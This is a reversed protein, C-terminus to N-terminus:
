SLLLLPSPRWRTSPPRLTSIVPVSATSSNDASRAKHSATSNSIVLDIHLVFPPFQGPPTVPAWYPSDASTCVCLVGVQQILEFGLAKMNPPRDKLKLKPLTLVLDGNAIENSTSIADFAVKFDCHVLGAVADALEARYIDVPNHLMDAGPANTVPKSLELGRLLGELGSLTDTAM